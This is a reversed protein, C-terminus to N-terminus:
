KAAILLHRPNRLWGSPAGMISALLQHGKVRFLYKKLVRGDPFSLPSRLCETVLLIFGQSRSQAGQMAAPLMAGM